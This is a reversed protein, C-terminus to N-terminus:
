SLRDLLELLRAKGGAPPTWTVHIATVNQEKLSEYFGRIGLNVVQLREHLIDNKKEEM